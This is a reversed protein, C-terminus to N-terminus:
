PLGGRNEYVKLNATAAGICAVDPRGDGDFDATTCAAAAIGGSDLTQRTWKGGNGSNAHYIHVSRGEGRFGTVIEDRGDGNFDATLITHGDVLTTDIVQRRWMGKEERYVVVQNGHWPEISALFRRGQLTGVAVDSSGGKPWPSTDGAVIRKKSWREDRGLKFLHIGLFSATLIEERGDSDWDIVWIGHVVGEDAPAEPTGSIDRRMWDEPDYFVLPTPARDEPANVNPGTLASNIAVKRGDGRIDAWRIRHSTPIRDIEAVKWPERPDGQSRLVSVTGISQKARNEFDHALVIEPIGDGDTDWVALNIMRKLGDAIVHRRWSPNEYWALEDMRSALAILDPRGDRNLDAAVVQYGGQLGTAILRERFHVPKPAALLAATCLTGALVRLVGWYLQPLM